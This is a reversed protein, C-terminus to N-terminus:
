CFKQMFRQQGYNLLFVFLFIVIYLNELCAAVSENNLSKIIERIPNRSNRIVLFTCLKSNEVSEKGSVTFVRVFNVDSNM